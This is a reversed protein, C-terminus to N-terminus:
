FEDPPPPESFTERWVEEGFRRVSLSPFAAYVVLRQHPHVSYASWRLVVAAGSLQLPIV